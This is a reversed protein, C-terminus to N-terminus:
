YYIFVNTKFQLGKSDIYVFLLVVRKQKRYRFDARSRRTWKTWVFSPGIALKYMYFLFKNLIEDPQLSALKNFFISPRWIEFGASFWEAVGSGLFHFNMCVILPPGM